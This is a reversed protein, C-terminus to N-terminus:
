KRSPAGPPPGQNKMSERMMKLPMEIQEKLIEYEPKPLEQLNDLLKKVETEGMELTAQMFEPSGPKKGALKERLEVINERTLNGFNKKPDSQEVAREIIANARAKEEDSIPMQDVMQAFHKKQSNQPLNNQYAKAKDKELPSLFKDLEGDASQTLSEQMKLLDDVSANPDMLKAGFEMESKMSNSFHDILKKSSEEPLNLDKILDDYLVSVQENIAKKRKDDFPVSDDRSHPGQSSPMSPMSPNSPRPPEFEPATQSEPRLSDYNNGGYNRCSNLQREVDELQRSSAALQKEKEELTNQLASVHEGLLANEKQQSSIKLYSIVGFIVVIFLTAIYVVRLLNQQTM